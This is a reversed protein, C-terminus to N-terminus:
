FYGTVGGRISEPVKRSRVVLIDCLQWVRYIHVVGFIFYNAVGKNRFTVGELIHPVTRQYNTVSMGLFIKAEM